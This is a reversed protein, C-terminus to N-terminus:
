KFLQELFMEKYHNSNDKCMSLTCPLNLYCNMSVPKGDHSRADGPFISCCAIKPSVSKRGCTGLSISELKEPTATSIDWALSSLM